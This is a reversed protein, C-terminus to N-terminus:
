SGEGRGTRVKGSARLVYYEPKRTKEQVVGLLEEFPKLLEECSPGQVGVVEMEVRGDPHIRVIIEQSM